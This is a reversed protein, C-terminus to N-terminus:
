SWCRGEGAAHCDSQTLVPGESGVRIIEREGDEAERGRREVDCMLDDEAQVVWSLM